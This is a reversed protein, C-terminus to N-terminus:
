EQDCGRGVIMVTEGGYLSDTQGGPVGAEDM